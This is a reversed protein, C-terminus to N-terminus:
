SLLIKSFKFNLEDSFVAAIKLIKLIDDPSFAKTWSPKNQIDKGDSSSPPPESLCKFANELEKDSAFSPINSIIPSNKVEQIWKYYSEYFKQFTFIFELAYFSQAYDIPSLQSLDLPVTFERRFLGNESKLGIRRFGKIFTRDDLQEISEWIALHFLHSGERETYGYEELSLLKHHLLNQQYCYTEWDRTELSSFHTPKPIWANSYNTLLFEAEESSTFQTFINKLIGVKLGRDLIQTNRPFATELLDTLFSIFLKSIQPNNEFYPFVDSEIITTQYILAHNWEHTLSPTIESSILKLNQRYATSLLDMFRKFHLFFNPISLTNQLIEREFESFTYRKQLIGQSVVLFKEVFPLPINPLDLEPFSLSHSGFSFFEEYYKILLQENFETLLTQITQIIEQKNPNKSKKAQLVGELASFSEPLLLPLKELPSKEVEKLLISIVKHISQATYSLKCTDDLPDFLKKTAYPTKISCSKGSKSFYHSSDLHGAALESLIYHAFEQATEQNNEIQGLQNSFSYNRQSKTPEM